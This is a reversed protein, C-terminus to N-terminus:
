SSPPVANTEQLATNNLPPASLGDSFGVSSDDYAYNMLSPSNPNCHPDVVGTAGAPGSHGLGMGHGLEHAGVWAHPLGFTFAFSNIGTQGGGSAYPLGYRFIGWRASEM